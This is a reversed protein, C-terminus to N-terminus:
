VEGDVDYKAKNIAPLGFLKWLDTCIHNEAYITDDATSGGSSTSTIVPNLLPNDM